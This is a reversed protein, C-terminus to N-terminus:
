VPTELDRFWKLNIDAFLRDRAETEELFRVDAETPAAGGLMTEAILALRAFSERHGEFRLEAYDRANWTSILFQWDSSQLLLLERAAQKLVRDLLGASDAPARALLGAM